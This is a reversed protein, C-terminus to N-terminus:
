RGLKNSVDSSELNSKCEQGYEDLEKIIADAKDDTALKFEDRIIDTECKFEGIAKNIFYHPYKQLLKMEDVLKEVSKFADFATEYQSSFKAKQIKQNVLITLGKNHLFGANPVPHIIDCALCHYEKAGDKIHKKCVSDSCPLLVPSELVCKCEVFKIALEITEM